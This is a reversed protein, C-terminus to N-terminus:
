RKMYDLHECSTVDDYSQNTDETCVAVDDILFVLPSDTLEAAGVLSTPAFSQTFVPKV